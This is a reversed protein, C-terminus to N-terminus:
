DSAGLKKLAAFASAPDELIGPMDPYIRPATWPGKVQIAVPFKVPPPAATDAAASSFQPDVKLDIAQRLLDVEGKGTISLSPSTLTLNTTAAIGDTITFTASLADFATGAREDRGWGELIVSAVKGFAAKLDIAKITGSVIRFAAQGQLTSVLEDLNHGSATVSFSPSLSGSIDALGVATLLAKDAALGDGNVSFQFAPPEAKSDVNLALDLTGGAYAAKDLKLDLKGDHLSTILHAPGTRFAGRAFAKASVDLNADFSKLKSLDIPKSSRPMSLFSAAPPTAGGYRTLDVTQATVKADIVPRGNARALAIDGEGSMDDLAFQSKTLALGISSTEVAGALEFRAVNM